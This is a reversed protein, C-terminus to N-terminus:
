PSEREPQGEPKEGTLHEQEYYECDMQFWEQPRGEGDSGDSTLYPENAHPRARRRRADEADGDAAGVRPQGAPRPEGDTPDFAPHHNPENPARWQRTAASGRRTHGGQAGAEVGGGEDESSDTEELDHGEDGHGRNNGPGEEARGHLEDDQAEQEAATQLLDGEEEDGDPEGTRLTRRLSAAEASGRATLPAREPAVNAGATSVDTDHEVRLAGFIARVSAVATAPLIGCQAEPKRGAVLIRHPHQRAHAPLASDTCATDMVIAATAKMAVDACRRATAAQAAEDMGCAELFRVLGSTTGGLATSGVVFCAATAGHPLACATDGGQGCQLEHACRQLGRAKEEEAERANADWGAWGDALLVRRVRGSAGNMLIVTIDPRQRQPTRAVGTAGDTQGVQIDLAIVTGTPLVQLIDHVVTNLVADHRWTHAVKRMRCVAVVHRVDDDADGCRCRTRYGDAVPYQQAWRCRCIANLERSTLTTAYRILMDNTFEPVVDGNRMWEVMVWHQARQHRPLADNDRHPTDLQMNEAMRADHDERCAQAALRPTFLHHTRAHALVLSPGDHWAMGLGHRACFDRLIVLRTDEGAKWDAPRPPTPVVTDRVASAPPWGQRTMADSLLVLVAPDDSRGLRLVASLAVREVDRGYMTPHQASAAARVLQVAGLGLRRAPTAWIDRPVRNRGTQGFLVLALANYILAQARALVQVPPVHLGIRHLLRMTPRGQTIIRARQLPGLSCREVCWLAHELEALELRWVAAQAGPEDTVVGGLWRMAGKAPQASPANSDTPRAHPLTPRVTRFWETVRLPATLECDSLAPVPRLEGDEDRMSVGHEAPSVLRGARRMVVQSKRVAGHLGFLLMVRLMIDVAESTRPTLKVVIHCDDCQTGYTVKVPGTPYATGGVTAGVDLHGVARGACEVMRNAIETSWAAGQATSRTPKFIASAEGTVPHMLVLVVNMMCFVIWRVMWIPVGTYRLCFFAGGFNVMDFFKRLDVWVVAIDSRERRAQELMEQCRFLHELPGDVNKRYAKNWPSYLRQAVASVAMRRLVACGLDKLADTMLVIMRVHKKVDTVVPEKALFKVVAILMWAPAMAWQVIFLNACMSLFVAAAPPLRLRADIHAGTWGAATRTARAEMAEMLEIPTFHACLASPWPHVDRFIDRMSLPGAGDAAGRYITTDAIQEAKREADGVSGLVTGTPASYMEEIYEQLQEGTINGMKTDGDIIQETAMKMSRFYLKRLNKRDQASRQRRHLARAAAWRKTVVHYETHLAARWKVWAGVADDTDSAALLAQARQLLGTNAEEWRGTSCVKRACQLRARVRRRVLACPPDNATWHEAAIVLDVVTAHWRSLGSDPPAGGHAPDTPVRRAQVAEDQLGAAAAATYILAEIGFHVRTVEKTDWLAVERLLATTERELHEQMANWQADTATNQIRRLQPINGWRVLVRTMKGASSGSRWPARNTIGYAELATSTNAWAGSLWAETASTHADPAPAEELQVLHAVQTADCRARPQTRPDAGRAADISASTLNSRPAAATGTPETNQTPVTGGPAPAAFGARGDCAPLEAVYAIDGEVWEVVSRARHLLPATHAAQLLDVAAWRQMLKPFPVLVADGDTDGLRCVALVGEAFGFDWIQRAGVARVDAPLAGLEFRLTVRGAATHTAHVLEHLRRERAGFVWVVSAREAVATDRRVTEERTMPKREVEVHTDDATVLDTRFPDRSRVHGLDATTCRIVVERMRAPVIAQWASQWASCVSLGGTGALQRPEWAEDHARDEQLLSPRRALAPLKARPTEMANWEKHLVAALVHLAARQKAAESAAEKHYPTDHAAVAHGVAQVATAPEAHTASCRVSAMHQAPANRARSGPDIASVNGAGVDTYQLTTRHQHARGNQTPTGTLDQNSRQVWDSLCISPTRPRRTSALLVGLQRMRAQTAKGGTAGHLLRAMRAAIWATAEPRPENDPGEGTQATAAGRYSTAAAGPARAVDGTGHSEEWSAINWVLEAAGGRDPTEEATEDSREGNDRNIRRRARARKEAEDRVTPLSGGCYLLASPWLVMRQIAALRSDQAVMDATGAPPGGAHLPESSPTTDDDTGSCDAPSEMAMNDRDAEGTGAGGRLLARVIDQAIGDISDGCPLFLTFGHRTRALVIRDGSMDDVLTAVDACYGATDPMGPRIAHAHELTQMTIDPLAAVIGVTRTCVRMLWRRPPVDMEAGMCGRIHSVGSNRCDVRIDAVPYVGESRACRRARMNVRTATRFHAGASGTVHVLAALAASDEDDGSILLATAHAAWAPDRHIATVDCTCERGGDDARVARALIRETGTREPSSRLIIARVSPVSLLMHVAAVLASRRPLTADRHAEDDRLALVRRNHGKHGFGNATQVKDGLGLDNNPLCRRRQQAMGQVAWAAAGIGRLFACRADSPPRHPGLEPQQRKPEAVHLRSDGDRQLLAATVALQLNAHADPEGDVVRRLHPLWQEVPEAQTPVGRRQLADLLTTKGAGIGGDVVVLAGEPCRRLVANALEHPPWRGDLRIHRPTRQQAARLQEAYGPDMYEVRGRQQKRHVCLTVPTDLCIRTRAEPPADTSCAQARRQAEALLGWQAETIEGRAYMVEIFATSSENDRERVLKPGERAGPCHEEIPTDRPTKPQAARIDRFQQHGRNEAGANARSRQRRQQLETHERADYERDMNNWEPPRSEGDSGDSTLYPEDMRTETRRQGADKPDGSNCLGREGPSNGSDTRREGQRNVGVAAEAANHAIRIGREKPAHADASDKRKRAGGKTGAPGAISPTLEEMLADSRAPSVHLPALRLTDRHSTGQAAWNVDPREATQKTTPAMLPARGVDKEPTLGDGPTRQDGRLGEEAHADAPCATDEAKRGGDDDAGAGGRPRQTPVSAQEIPPTSARHQEGKEGGKLTGSGTTTNHHPSRITMQFENRAGLRAETSVLLIYSVAVQHFVQPRGGPGFSIIDHHRLLPMPEDPPPNEGNIQCTWMRNCTPQVRVASVGSDYTLIAMDDAAAHTHLVLDNWGARGATYATGATMPLPMGAPLEGDHTPLHQLVADYRCQPRTDGGAAQKAMSAAAREPVLSTPAVVPAAHGEAARQPPVDSAKEWGGDHGSETHGHTIETAGRPRKRAPPRPAAEGPERRRPARRAPPLPAVANGAKGATPPDVHPADTREQETDAPTHAPNGGADSQTEDPRRGVPPADRQPPPIVVTFRYPDFAQGHVERPGFQIADGDVMTQPSHHAGYARGNLTFCRNTVGLPTITVERATADYAVVAHERSIAIHPLVMAPLRERDRGILRELGNPLELDATSPPEANQFEGPVHRLRACESSRAAYIAPAEAPRRENAHAPVGSTHDLQASVLPTADPDTSAETHGHGAAIEIHQTIGNRLRHARPPPAWHVRGQTPGPASQRAEDAKSCSLNRPEPGPQHNGRLYLHRTADGVLASTDSTAEHPAGAPGGAASHGATGSGDTDHEQVGAGSLGSGAPAGGLCRLNDRRPASMQRENSGAGATSDAADTTRTSTGSDNEAAQATERAHPQPDAEDPCSPGGTALTASANPGAVRQLTVCRRASQVAARTTGALAELAKTIRAKCGTGKRPAYGQAISALREANDAAAPAGTSPHTESDDKNSVDDTGGDDTKDTSTRSRAGPVDARPTRCTRDVGVSSCANSDLADYAAKLPSQYCVACIDLRDRDRMLPRTQPLETRSLMPIHQPLTLTPTSRSSGDSADFSHENCCHRPCRSCKRAVRGRCGGPAFPGAMYDVGATHFYCGAVERPCTERDLSANPRHYIAYSSGRLARANQHLRRLLARTRDDYRGVWMTEASRFEIVGTKWMPGDQISNDKYVDYITVLLSGDQGPLTAYEADAPQLPGTRIYLGNAYDETGTEAMKEAMRLLETEDHLLRTRWGLRAIAHMDDCDIAALPKGPQRLCNPDFQHTADLALQAAVRGFSLHRPDKTQVGYEGCPHLGARQLERALDTATAGSTSSGLLHHLVPTAAPLPKWGHALSIRAEDVMHRAARRAATQEADIADAGHRLEWNRIAQLDECLESLGTIHPEMYCRGESAADRVAAARMAAAIAPQLTEGSDRAWDDDTNQLPAATATGGPGSPRRQGNARGVSGQTSTPGSTASEEDTPTAAARPEILKKEAHPGDPANGAESNGGLLPLGVAVSDPEGTNDHTVVARPQSSDGEASQSHPTADTTRNGSRETENGRPGSSYHADEGKGAENGCTRTTRAYKTTGSGQTSSESVQDYIAVAGGGTAAAQHHWRTLLVRVATSYPGVWSAGATRIEVARMEANAHRTALQVATAAAEEATGGRNIERLHVEALLAASITQSDAGGSHSTTGRLRATRYGWERSVRQAAAGPEASESHPRVTLATVLVPTPATANTHDEDSYLFIGAPNAGGRQASMACLARIAMGPNALERTHWETRALAAPSRCVHETPEEDSRGVLKHDLPRGADSAVQAVARVLTLEMRESATSTASTPHLGAAILEQEMRRPMPANSTSRLCPHQRPRTAEPTRIRNNGPRARCVVHKAACHRAEMDLNHHQIDRGMTRAAAMATALEDQGLMSITSSARGEGLADRLEAAQMAQQLMPHLLRAEWWGWHRDADETDTSGSNEQPVEAAAGEDTAGNASEPCEPGGAPPEKRSPLRLARRMVSHWWPCQVARTGWPSGGEVSAERTVQEQDPCAPAGGLRRHTSTAADAAAREPTTATECPHDPTSASEATSPMAAQDHGAASPHQQQQLQRQQQQQQQQQQHQQQPHLRQQQQQRQQVQQPLKETGSSCLHRPHWQPQQQQRQQQQQGHQQTQQQRGTGEAPPGPNSARAPHAPLLPTPLTQQVQSGGPCCRSWCNLCLLRGCYVCRAHPAAGCKMCLHAYGRQAAGHGREEDDTRPAESAESGHYRESSSQAAGPDGEGNDTGDAGSAESDCNITCGQCLGNQLDASAESHGQTGRGAHALGTSRPRKCRAHRGCFMRGCSSCETNAHSGCAGTRTGPVPEECHLEWNGGSQQAELTEVTTPTDAVETQATARGDKCPAGSVTTGQTATGMGKASEPHPESNASHRPRKDTHPITSDTGSNLRGSRGDAGAGESDGRSTESDVRGYNTACGRCMGNQLDALAESHGHTRQGAQALGTSSPPKRRAHKGCFLRGCGNCETNARSGCAGTRENPVPEECRLAWNGASQQAKLTAKTTTADATDTQATARADECPAGTTPTSQLAPGAATASEPCPEGGRPREPETTTDDDGNAPDPATPPGTVLHEDEDLLDPAPPAGSGSRAGTRTGTGEDRRAQPQRKKTRSWPWVGGRVGDTSWKGPTRRSGATIMKNRWPPGEHSERQRPWHPPSSPAHMGHNHNSDEPHPGGGSRRRAAIAWRLWTRQPAGAAASPQEGEGPQASGDREEPCPPAGVRSARPTKTPPAAAEDDNGHHARGHAGDGAWLQFTDSLAAFASPGASAPGFAIEQGPRLTPVVDVGTYVTGRVRCAADAGPMLVVQLAEAAGTLTVEAHVPPAADRLLCLDSGRAGGILYTRQPQMQLAQVTRTDGARPM